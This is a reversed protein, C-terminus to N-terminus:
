KKARGGDISVPMENSAAGVPKGLSRAHSCSNFNALKGRKPGFFDGAPPAVGGLNGRSYIDMNKRTINSGQEELPRVNHMEYGPWGHLIPTNNQTLNEPSSNPNKKSQCIAKRKM